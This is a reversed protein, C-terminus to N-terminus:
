LRVRRGGHCRGPQAFWACASARLLVERWGHCVCDCQEPGVGEDVGEHGCQGREGSAEEGEEAKVNDSAAAAADASEM